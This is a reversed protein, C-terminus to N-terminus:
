IAQRCKNDSGPSSTPRSVAIKEGEWSCYTSQAAELNWWGESACYRLSGGSKGACKMRCDYAESNYRRPTGVVWPNVGEEQWGIYSTDWCVPNTEVNEGNAANWKVGKCKSANMEPAWLGEADHKCEGTTLPFSADDGGAVVAKAIRDGHWELVDLRATLDSIDALAETLSRTLADIEENLDQRRRQSKETKTFTFCGSDISIIEKAHNKLRFFYRINKKSAEKIKARRLDARTILFNGTNIQLPWTKLVQETKGKRLLLEITVKNGLWDDSDKWQLLIASGKNL